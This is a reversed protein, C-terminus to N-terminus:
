SILSGIKRGFVKLYEQSNAHPSIRIINNGHKKTMVLLRKARDRNHLKLFSERFKEKDELRVVESLNRFLNQIFRKISPM